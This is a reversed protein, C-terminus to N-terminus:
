RSRAQAHPCQKGKQATNQHEAANPLNESPWEPSGSARNLGTLVHAPFMTSKVIPTQFLIHLPDKRRPAWVFAWEMM